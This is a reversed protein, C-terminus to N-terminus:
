EADLGTQAARLLAAVEPSSHRPQVNPPTLARQGDNGRAADVQERLADIRQTTDDANMNLVIQQLAAPTRDEAVIQRMQVALDAIQQLERGSASRQSIFHWVAYSGALNIMGLAGMGASMLWSPIEIENRQFAYSVGAVSFSFASVCALAGAIVTYPRRGSWDRQVYNAGAGLLVAAM